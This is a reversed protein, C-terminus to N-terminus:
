PASPVLFAVTETTTGRVDLTDRKVRPNAAVEYAQQCSRPYVKIGHEMGFGLRHAAEDAVGSPNAAEVVVDELYALQALLEQLIPLGDRVLHQELDWGAFRIVVCHIYAPVSGSSRNRPPSGLAVHFELHLHRTYIWAVGELQYAEVCSDFGLSEVYM